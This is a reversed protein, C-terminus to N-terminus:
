LIRKRSFYPFNELVFEFSLGMQVESKLKRLQQMWSLTAGFKLHCQICYGNGKLTLTLSKTGIM